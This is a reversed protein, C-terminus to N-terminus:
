ETEREFQGQLTKEKWEKLRHKKKDKKSVNAIYKELNLEAAATKVLAEKSQTTYKSLNYKEEEICDEVSVLDRRGDSRPICLRDVCSRTHLEGYITILKRTNKNM